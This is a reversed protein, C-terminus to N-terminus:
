RLKEALLKRVNDVQEQSLSTVIDELGGPLHAQPDKGTRFVYYDFYERWAQRQDQDLRAITLLAHLLSDNPSVDHSAIGGWWYNVLVNLADSSGRSLTGDRLTPSVVPPQLPLKLTFVSGRNPESQLTLGGGMLQALNLSISLGLGTGGFKRTTSSDAQVFAEFISEQQEPTIGIGTDKM